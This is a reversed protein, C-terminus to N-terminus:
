AVVYVGDDREEVEYSRLRRRRDSVCVGTELEFEWGHWPCVLRLDGDDFRQRVVAGEGDLEPAVGPMVRGRCVPGGAHPCRNAYAYLGDGVAFVVVEEGDAAVAVRTDRLEDRAAVRWAGM